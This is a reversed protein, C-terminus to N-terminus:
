GGLKEGTWRREMQLLSVVMGLLDLIELTSQLGMYEALRKGITKM